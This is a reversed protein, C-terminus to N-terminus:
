VPIERLSIDPMWLPLHHIGAQARQKPAKAPIVNRCRKINSPLVIYRHIRRNISKLV